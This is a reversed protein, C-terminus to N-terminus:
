RGPSEIGYKRMLAFFTRRPKGVSRAARAINGASRTLADVIHSREFAEVAARKGEQFTAALREHEGVLPLDNPEVARGLQICTLYRVLNELERVNGPWRYGALRELAATSFCIAPMRYASAYHSSFRELLPAIDEPRQALPAVVIPVVRLRFLLDERMRGEHVAQMLDTNSAAVLRVDARRLHHEGLRRYERLQVFRLMKAQSAPSLADVEDLFLTGGEAASVLGERERKAGTFAGAVHGFLENEFLEDSLVACNVAIFASKSRKSADHVYRAYLEKGVGTPGTILVEVDTHAVRGLIELVGQHARSVGLLEGGPM